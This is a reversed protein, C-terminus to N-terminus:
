RVFKTYIEWIKWDIRRLYQMQAWSIELQMRAIEVQDDSTLAKKFKANFAKMADDNEFIEDVTEKSM